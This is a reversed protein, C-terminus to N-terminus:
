LTPGPTHSPDSNGLEGAQERLQGVIVMVDLDDADCDRLIRQMAGRVLRTRDRLIRLYVVEERLGAIAPLTLVQDITRALQRLPTSGPPLPPIPSDTV